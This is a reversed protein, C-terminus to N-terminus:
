KLNSLMNACAQAVSSDARDSGPLTAWGGKEVFSAQQYSSIKKLEVMNTGADASRQFKDVCIPSVSGRRGCDHKSADNRARNRRHGLRGLLLRRDIHRRRRSSRGAVFADTFGRSSYSANGHHKGRRGVRKPALAVSARILEPRHRRTPNFPRGSQAPTETPCMMRWQASIDIAPVLSIYGPKRRTRRALSPDAKPSVAAWIRQSLRALIPVGIRCFFFRAAIARPAASQSRLTLRRAGAAPIERSRGEPRQRRAVAVQASTLVQNSASGTENAAKSM